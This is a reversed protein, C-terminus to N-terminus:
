WRRCSSGVNRHMGIEAAILQTEGFTLNSVTTFGGFFSGLAGVFAAIAIWGGGFADPLTTRIISAPSAPGKQILIQVLVLAGFLAIAPNRLRQVSTKIIKTPHNQLSKWHIVITILAAVLVFPVFLPIYLLEYKWNLGPHTFINQLQLVLSALMKFTGYTGFHISFSSEKRTLLEKLGIHQVRTLVSVTGWLPFTHGILEFVYGEKLTKCPGLLHNGEHMKALADETDQEEETLAIKSESSLQTENHHSRAEEM